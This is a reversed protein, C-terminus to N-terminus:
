GVADSVLRGGGSSEVRLECNGLPATLTARTAMKGGLVLSGDKINAEGDIKWGFTTKGDCRLMWGDEIEKPTLSNPNGTDAAALCLAACLCVVTGVLYRM